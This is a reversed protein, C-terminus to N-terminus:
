DLDDLDFNLYDLFLDDDKVPIVLGDTDALFDIEAAREEALKFDYNVCGTKPCLIKVAFDAAETCGCSTCTVKKM